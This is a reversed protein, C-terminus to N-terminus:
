STEYGFNQHDLWIKKDSSKSFELKPQMNLKQDEVLSSLKEQMFIIM